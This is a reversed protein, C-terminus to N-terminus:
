KRHTTKWYSLEFNQHKRRIFKEAAADVDAYSGKDSVNRSGNQQQQWQQQQHQRQQPKVAESKSRGVNRNDKKLPSLVHSFYINYEDLLSETRVLKSWKASSM